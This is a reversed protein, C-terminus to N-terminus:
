GVPRARVDAQEVGDEGHNMVRDCTVGAAAWSIAGGSYSVVYHM